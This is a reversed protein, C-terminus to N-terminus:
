HTRGPVHPRWGVFDTAANVFQVRLFEIRDLAAWFEDHDIVQDELGTMFRAEFDDMADQWARYMQCLEEATMEIIEMLGVTVVSSRGFIPAEGNLLDIGM